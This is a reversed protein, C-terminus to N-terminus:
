TLALRHLPNVWLRTFWDRRLLNKLERLFKKPNELEDHSKRLVELCFDSAEFSPGLWILVQRAFTYISKMLGVQHNREKPNKQDICLADIWITRPTPCSPPPRLHRIASELNKGLPLGVMHDARVTAVGSCTTWPEVSDVVKDRPNWVYSLADYVPHADLNVVEIVIEVPDHMEGQQIHVIRIETPGLSGYVYLPIELLPPSDKFPPVDELEPEDEGYTDSFPGDFAFTIAGLGSARSELPPADKHTSTGKHKSRTKSSPLIKQLAMEAPAFIASLRSM